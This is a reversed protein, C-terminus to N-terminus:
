NKALGVLKGFYESAKQRTAAAAAARAAARYARFRNPTQKLATEYEKLAAAPQVVELVLDALLERLPYLRNEMAIHKLSGDEGDAAARMCRVAQALAGEKLFIWVPVARMEDERRDAGWAQGARELEARLRKM